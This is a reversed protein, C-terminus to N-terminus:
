ECCFVLVIDDSALLEACACEGFLWGDGADAIMVVTVLVTYWSTLVCCVGWCGRDVCCRVDVEVYYIDWVVRGFGM